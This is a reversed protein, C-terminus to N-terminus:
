IISRYPLYQPDHIMAVFIYLFVLVAGLSVLRRLKVEPIACILTPIIFVVMYRLPQAIRDAFMMGFVLPVLSYLLLLCILTNAELATLIEKKTSKRLFYLGAIMLSFVGTWVISFDPAFFSEVDSYAVLLDLQGIIDILHGRCLIAFLLLIAAGIWYRIKIKNKLVFYFLLSSAITIKHFLGSLIMLCLGLAKNKVKIAKQSHVFLYYVGAILVIAVYQRTVNMSYLYPGSTIFLFLSFLPYKAYKYILYFTIGVVAGSSIIFVWGPDSSFFRIIVNLLHWAYDGTASSWGEAFMRRYADYDKGVELRLASLLMLPLASVVAFVKYQAIRGRDKVTIALAMLSLSLAASGLYWIM